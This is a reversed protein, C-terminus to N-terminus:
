SDCFTQLALAKCEREKGEAKVIDCLVSRILMYNPDKPKEFKCIGRHNTQIPFRHEHKYDLTASSKDVIMVNGVNGLFFNTKVTEYFSYLEVDDAVHRFDENISQLSVSNRQLEDLYQRPAHSFALRLISNLVQAGDSGRHPTALFTIARIRMAVHHFTADQRGLLYAKKVVLGGMSHAVFILPLDSPKRLTEAYKLVNLLGLSFDSLNSIDAKMSTWDSNYGYSHIRVHRFDEDRPLWAPWFNQPSKSKTWTKSSGGGLGHVFILDVVPDQPQSVPVLGLAGRGSDDGEVALRQKSNHLKLGLFSSATTSISDRQPEDKSSLAM